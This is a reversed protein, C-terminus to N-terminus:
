YDQNIPNPDELFTNTRVGRLISLSPFSIFNWPVAFEIEKILFRPVTLALIFSTKNHPFAPTFLQVPVYRSHATGELFRYCIAHM